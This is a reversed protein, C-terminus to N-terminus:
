EDGGSWETFKVDTGVRRDTGRDRRAIYETPM